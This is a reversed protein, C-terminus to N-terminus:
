LKHPSEPEALYSQLIDEDSLEEATAAELYVSRSLTIATSERIWAILGIMDKEYFLKPSNFRTQDSVAEMNDLKTKAQKPNEAFFNMMLDVSVDWSTKFAYEDCLESFQNVAIRVVSIDVVEEEFTFTIEWMGDENITTTVNYGYLHLQHLINGVVEYYFGKSDRQKFTVTSM